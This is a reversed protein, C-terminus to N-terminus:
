KKLIKQQFSKEFNRIYKIDNVFNNFNQVNRLKYFSSWEISCKIYQPM